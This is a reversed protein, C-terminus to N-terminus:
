VPTRGVEGLATNCNRKFNVGEFEYVKLRVLQSQFVELMSSWFAFKASTELKTM